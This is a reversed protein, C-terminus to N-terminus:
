PALLSDEYSALLDAPDDYIAVAGAATLVDDGFGGSRVAITRLGLKAAAEIDYPSDGVVVADAAEAGVKKLAAAFIDPHPKSREADSATTVEDVLDRVGLTELHPEVEHSEGSTAIVIAWGDQRARRFLAAVEAFPQVQDAYRDRYIRSRAKSIAEGHEDVITEELLAPMLNDGGKGIQDRVAAHAVVIGFEAFADMWARAHLDNSDVLTGDVDFLIAKITM